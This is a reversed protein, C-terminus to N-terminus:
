LSASLRVINKGNADLVSVILHDSLPVAKSRVSIGFEVVDNSFQASMLNFATPKHERSLVTFNDAPNLQVGNKWEVKFTFSAGFDEPLELGQLSTVNGRDDCEPHTVRVTVYLEEPYLLVEKNKRYYRTGRSSDKRKLDRFFDGSSLTGGWFFCSDKSALPQGGFYIVDTGKTGPRQSAFSVGTIAACSLLMLWTSVFLQRALNMAHNGPLGELANWLDSTSARYYHAARPM